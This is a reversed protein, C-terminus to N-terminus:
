CLQVTNNYRVPFTYQSTPFMFAGLPCTKELGLVCKNYNLYTSTTFKQLLIIVSLKNSFAFVLQM